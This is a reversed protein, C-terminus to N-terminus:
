RGGSLQFRDGPWASWIWAWASVAALDCLEAFNAELRGRDPDDGCVSLRRAGLERRIQPDGDSADGFDPDIIM